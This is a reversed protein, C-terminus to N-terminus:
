RLVEAGVRVRRVSGDAAVLRAGDDTVQVRFGRWHAGDAIREGDIWLDRVVGDIGHTPDYLTGGAIKILGM